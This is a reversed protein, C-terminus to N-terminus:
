RQLAMERPAHRRTMPRRSQTVAITVLAMLVAQDRNQPVDGISLPRDSAHDTSREAEGVDPIAITTAVGPVVAPLVDGALPPGQPSAFGLDLLMAAETYMDPSRLLVAIITRGDRRAAAVLTSGAARTGGTKMGVAGPYRDLLRNHGLVYHGVGDLGAMDYRDLTLIPALLDDALVARAIIALDRASILSGGAFAHEDDLGAPEALFPQDELGMREGVSQAVVAYRMLSGQGVAEALAVAADNASAMLAAHVLDDRTWQEGIPMGMRRAPMSKAVPSITIPVAPDLQGVALLATLLKITSAPRVPTREDHAALVAGSDADVVIWQSARVGAVAGESVASEAAVAGVVGLLTLVAV